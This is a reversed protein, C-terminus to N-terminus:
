RSWKIKKPSIQETTPEAEEDPLLMVKALEEDPVESRHMALYHVCLSNTVTGCELQCDRSSSMADCVCVHFGKWGSGPDFGRSSSWAGWVGKNLAAAMRRTYKDIVPEASEPKEPEM